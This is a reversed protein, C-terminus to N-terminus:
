ASLFEDRSRYFLILAAANLVLFVLDALGVQDFITLLINLILVSITLYFAARKKTKLWFYCVLLVISALLMTLAYVIYLGTLDPNQGIRTLTGISLFALFASLLLILYRALQFNKM